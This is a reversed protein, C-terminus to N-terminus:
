NQMHVQACTKAEYPWSKKVQSCPQILNRLAEYESKYGWHQCLSQSDIIYVVYLDLLHEMFTQSQSGVRGRLANALVSVGLCDLVFPGQLLGLWSNRKSSQPPPAPPLIEAHPKHGNKAVLPRGLRVGGVLGQSSSPEM